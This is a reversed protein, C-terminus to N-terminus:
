LHLAAREQTSVEFPGGTTAKTINLFFCVNFEIPGFADGICLFSLIVLLM